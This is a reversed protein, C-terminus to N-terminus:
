VAYFGKGNLEPGWLTEGQRSPLSPGETKNLFSLLNTEARVAGTSDWAGAPVEAESLVM